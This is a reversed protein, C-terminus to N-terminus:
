NRSISQKDISSKELANSLTLCLRNTCLNCWYSMLPVFNISQFNECKVSFLGMALFSAITVVRGNESGQLIVEYTCLLFADCCSFISLRKPRYKSLNLLNVINWVKKETVKVEARQSPM